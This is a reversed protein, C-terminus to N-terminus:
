DTCRVPSSSFHPVWRSSSRLCLLTTSRPREVRALRHTFIHTLTLNDSPKDKTTHTYQPQTPTHPQIQPLIQPQTLWNILSLHTFCECVIFACICVMFTSTCEGSYVRYSFHDRRTLCARLWCLYRRERQGYQFGKLYGPEDGLLRGLYRNRVILTHLSHIQSHM